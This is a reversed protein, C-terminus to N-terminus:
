GRGSKLRTASELVLLWPHAPETLALADMLWRKQEGSMLHLVRTLDIDDKARARKAKYLLQVEPTCYRVGSAAARLLRDKGMTIRPDRRFRWEGGNGSALIVEVAWPSGSAPRGWIGFVGDAIDEGRRWPSLEGESVTRLDWGEFVDFLVERDQRFVEIDVDEHHRSTWGLFLDIALGGAIWWDIDTVAFRGTLEEISLPAWVDTTM